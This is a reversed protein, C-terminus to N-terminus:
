SITVAQTHLITNVGTVVLLYAPGAPIAGCNVVIDIASPTWDTYGQPEVYTATAPDSTDCLVVRTSGEALYVDTMYVYNAENGTHAYDRVYGGFYFYMDDPPTVDDFAWDTGPSAGEVPWVRRTKLPNGANTISTTEWVYYYGTTPDMRLVYHLRRWGKTPNAAPEGYLMSFEGSYGPKQPIQTIGPTSLTNVSGGLRWDEILNGSAADVGAISTFVDPDLNVNDAAWEIPKMQKDISVPDAFWAPDARHYFSVYWERGYAADPDDVRFGAHNPVSPNTRGAWYHTLRPHPTAVSRFGSARVAGDVAYTEAPAPMSAGGDWRYIPAAKTGFGSGSVTFAGAHVLASPPTETILTLRAASTPGSPAQWRLNEDLVHAGIRQIGFNMRRGSVWGADAIVEQVLATVDFDKYGLTALAGGPISTRAATKVWTEPLNGVSIAAPSASEQAYIEAAITAPTPSASLAYLRLMASDVAHGDPVVVGQLSVAAVIETDGGLDGSAFYTNGSSWFGYLSGGYDAAALTTFETPPAPSGGVMTPFMAAVLM